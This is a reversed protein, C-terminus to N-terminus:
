TAPAARVTAVSGPPVTVTASTLHRLTQDHEDLRSALSALTEAVHAIAQAHEALSKSHEATVETNRQLMSTWQALGGPPLQAQIWQVVSGQWRQQESMWELRAVIEDQDGRRRRGNVVAVVVASAAAILAVIIAGVNTWAVDTM